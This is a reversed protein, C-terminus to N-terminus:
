DKKAKVLYVSLIAVNVLSFIVEFRVAWGFIEYPKGFGGPLLVLSIYIALVSVVLDLVLLLLINKKIM